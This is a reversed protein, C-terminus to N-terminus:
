LDEDEDFNISPDEEDTDQETIKIKCKEMLEDNEILEEIQSAMAEKLSDDDVEETEFEIKLTVSVTQM